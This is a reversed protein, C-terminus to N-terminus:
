SIDQPDTNMKNPVKQAEQVQIDTEKELNPFNDAMIEDFVNKFGKKRKEKEPVGIICINICKINDWLYGLSNENKLIQKEKPQELQIIEM